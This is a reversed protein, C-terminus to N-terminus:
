CRRAELLSWSSYTGSQLPIAQELRYGAAELLAQYQERTREHGGGMKLLAILNILHLPSPEPDIPMVGEIVLLTSGPRAARYCNTVIRLATADDWNHLVSKLVYLDGDPPVESFFDGGVLEVREALGRATIAPGVTAIVEPRDFLVGTAQPAAALLDALLVGQSGGIDVIRSFRSVDYHAVVETTIIASLNGMSRAFTAEEEPNERYYDWLGMGLTTSVASCGTMVADFLRGCPLWHGPMTAAIAFDRLSVPRADTALCAGLPTLAFRDPEVEAILGVTTAARLLLVLGDPDAGTVGALEASSQPGATLRDPLGLRAVTGVIQTVYYGQVMQILRVAPPADVPTTVSPSSDYTSSM